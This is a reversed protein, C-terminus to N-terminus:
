GGTGNKEELGGGMVMDMAQATTDNRSNSINRLQLRYRYQLM